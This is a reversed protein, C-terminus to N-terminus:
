ADRGGQVRVQEHDQAAQQRLAQVVEHEISQEWVYGLPPGSRLDMWGSGLAVLPSATLPRSHVLREFKPAELVSLRQMVALQPQWGDEVPRQSCRLISGRSKSFFSQPCTSRHVGPEDGLYLAQVV